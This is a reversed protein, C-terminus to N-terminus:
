IPCLQDEKCTSICSICFIDVLISGKRLVYVSPSNKHSGDEPYVKLKAALHQNSIRPQQKNSQIVNTCRWSIQVKCEQVRTISLFALQVFAVAEVRVKASRNTATRGTNSNNITLKHQRPM